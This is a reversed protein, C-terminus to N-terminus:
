GGAGPTSADSRDLALNLLLVGVRPEGLFGLVRGQTHAHIQAYAVSIHPDLGSGSATLADPPVQDATVGDFAAVQKRRQAILDLLTPSNPGLNSAGSALPDYGTGAASPRPQFYRALPAGTAPDLFQQGLLSSGVVAGDRSVQSGNAPGAALGQAVGAVVLPYALGLLVTLVLLARVAPLLQRIM